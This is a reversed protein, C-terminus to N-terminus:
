RARRPEIRSGRGAGWTEFPFPQAVEVTEVGMQLPLTWGALDYPPAPPGGPYLRRDPYRQPELLDKAHARYPQAMLVV